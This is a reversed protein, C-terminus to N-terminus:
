AAATITVPSHQAQRALCRPVCLSAEPGRRGNRLVRSLIRPRFLSAPPTFLNAVRHFAVAVVPDRHAARHVMRLYADTLGSLKPRRGRVEPFRFDAGVAIQWPVDILRAAAKFFRKSLRGRGHQLCSGLLEAELAAVSMGQGYVPNFSCMADGVVLLGEPFRRLREYRRRLSAPYKFLQVDSLPEATELFEHLLLSPLGRAFDAFAAEDASPIDDFMGGLTVSWRDDEIALAVGFRKNPPLQTLVVAMADQFDGARRRYVRTAYGLQVEVREELPPAYGLQELWQPTRSGRGSADVVLDAALTQGAGTGRDTLQVGVIRRCSADPVLREVCTRDRLTVNPLAALRRRVVSELLPRSQTVGVLGTAPRVHFGGEVHWLADGVVDGIKSGREVLEDRIGPFFRELAALGSALLGHTQRGQPVGKRPQPGEPLPDRELVTVHAFHDCLARAALLGGISAGMVVAHGPISEM